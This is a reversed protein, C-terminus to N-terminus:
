VVHNCCNLLLSTVIPSQLTVTSHSNAFVRVAVFHIIRANSSAPHNPSLAVTPRLERTSLRGRCSGLDRPLGGVIVM